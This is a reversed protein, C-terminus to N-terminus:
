RHCGHKKWCIMFFYPINIIVSMMQLLNYKSVMKVQLKLLSKFIFKLWDSVHCGHNRWMWIFHPTVPYLNVSWTSNWLLLNKFNWGTYVLYQGHCGHKKGSSSSILFKQLLGWLCWEQLNLELQYLLSSSFKLIHLSLSPLVASRFHHCYYSVHGKSAPSSYVQIQDMWKKSLLIHKFLWPLKSDM